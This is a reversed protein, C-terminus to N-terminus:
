GAAEVETTFSEVRAEVRFGLREYLRQPAGGEEALLHVLRDGAALSEGVARLVTASGIGLRRFAPLTVVNDVYGVGGLSLLSSFGAMRGGVFGVFWRLGAPYFVDRDRQLLQNVVEDTFDVGFERRTAGYWSWFSEDPEFIESVDVGSSRPEGEDGRAEFVMVVDPDQRRGSRRAELLAPNTTSTGWFEVHEHKAGAGRLAPLLAARVEQLTLDPAEELIEAHNADWIVPYRSDTKVLGWATRRCVPNLDAVAYWFSRLPESIGL